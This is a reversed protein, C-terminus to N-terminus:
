SRSATLAKSYHMDSTSVHGVAFGLFFQMLPWDPSLMSGGRSSKSGGKLLLLRKSLDETMAEMDSLMRHHEEVHETLGEYGIEALLSEEFAFHVKLLKELKEVTPLLESVGKGNCWNEYVNIGLNFIEKHQADIASQGVSYHDGWEVLKILSLPQGFSVNKFDM